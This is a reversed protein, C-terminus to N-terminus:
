RMERVRYNKPCMTLLKINKKFILNKSATIRKKDSESKGKQNTNHSNPTLHRPADMQHKPERKSM